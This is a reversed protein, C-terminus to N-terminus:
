IQNTSTEFCLERHLCHAHPQILSFFFFLISHDILIKVPIQWSTPPMRRRDRALHPPKQCPNSKTPPLVKTGQTPQYPTTLMVFVIENTPADLPDKQTPRNRSWLLVASRTWNKRNRCFCPRLSRRACSSPWRNDGYRHTKRRRHIYFCGLLLWCHDLLSTRPVLLFNLTKM